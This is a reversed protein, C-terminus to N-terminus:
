HHPPAPGALRPPPLPPPRLPLTRPAARREELPLGMLDRGDLWLVDFVHYASQRDWTVEGDLIIEHAPLAAVAAALSPIDQLNRTRSYLRVDSGRKFALLRIGDFKQEVIWDPGTFRETAPPAAMPAVWGPFAA